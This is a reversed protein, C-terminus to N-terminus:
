GCRCRASCSRTPAPWGSRTERMEERDADIGLASLFDAAARWAAGIDVGAITRAALVAPDATVARGPAPHSAEAAVAAIHGRKM